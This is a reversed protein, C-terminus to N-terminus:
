DLFLSYILDEPVRYRELRNTGGGVDKSVDTKHKKTKQQLNPYDKYKKRLEATNVRIIKGNDEVTKSTGMREKHLHQNDVIIMNGCSGSGDCTLADWDKKNTWICTRKRYGWDSYRCYDVIYFPKDKMVERDKLTSLPNELFWLEPNFYDIIEWVKYILSDSYKRNEEITEKTTMIGDKKKRGIWTNQLKSYFRCDPSAWIVDFYDKPYQKYDFELIDCTHTANFKKEYDLSVSEWGLADCCKGVSKTGCFLELVKIM